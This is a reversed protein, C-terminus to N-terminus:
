TITLGGDVAITQGTVYASADSALWVATAAIEEADGTRGLIIRQKMSDLYGPQYEDTMETRFFGPAIANVRIGKRAGWQQALDRTLGIVGAKSASYAAQPLGATTLGLVSSINVISSGPQMVRGVAQAAWYSGNLNIDIVQRFQEPTEKTAPVATGIGANNILIDVRGLQEVAHDVMRQAQEPDAIDTEVTVAQRGAERVLAATEELRDLRRAALVVDAGAEALGRTFAVGLGSSAGTVIAVRGDLRFRDLVSM